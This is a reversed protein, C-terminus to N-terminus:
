VSFVMMTVNAPGSAALVTLKMLPAPTASVNVSDLHRLGITAGTTGAPAKWNSSIGNFASELLVWESNSQQHSIELKYSEVRQGDTATAEEGLWVRNFSAVGSSPLKLTLTQGTSLVKSGVAAPNCPRAHGCGYRRTVEAGLDAAAKAERPGIVGAKSPPLNLIYETGRGQGAGLVNM